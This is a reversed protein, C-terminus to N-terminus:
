NIEGNLSNVFEAKRLEVFHEYVAKESKRFADQLCEVEELKTKCETDVNTRYAWPGFKESQIIVDVYTRM